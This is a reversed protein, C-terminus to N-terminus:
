EPDVEGAEDIFGLQALRSFHMLIKEREEDCGGYSGYDGLIRFRRELDPNRDICLYARRLAEGAPTHRPVSLHQVIAAM